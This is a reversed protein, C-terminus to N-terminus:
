RKESYSAVERKVDAYMYLSGLAMLPLGKVDAERMAAFVGEELTEHPIAAVGHAAFEGALAEPSMARPNAPRVTHVSEFLPALSATMEGHAKDAMVGMLAVPKVGGFFLKINRVAAAIGQPNHAGDYVTLPSECIVEFRAPWKAKGIGRLIADDTLGYKEKLIEAATLVLAANRTQYEGLLSLRVRGYPSIDFETGGFSTEANGIRSYDCYIVPSDSAEAEFVAHTSEPVEGILVPCGKKIIGAKEWAIKEHTDGLIATHDLAIGTIVSLESSGIVNTSDFRGGLGAEFVVIDVKERRFYELGVATILEFETPHDEMKEAYDKVFSVVEALKEDPIMESDIQIRENFCVVYPSTFLGTKYGAETFVSSIMKCFSGKGNTGAVHIFKLEKQPDGILRCLETIRSLGPKSGMWDFSHIYELAETYNM